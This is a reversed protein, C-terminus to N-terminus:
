LEDRLDDEPEAGTPPAEGTGQYLKAIIPQVVDSLEKKHKKYEEADADRNEELWKIKEQIIDEMKTKDSDSVKAGLKEKDSLQNKLSYVYGEFDNYADIRDKLKKDEDAFKEATKIMDDIDEPTLRNQDNTIVIKERNGTGKDEASVQLIGNADIEFTVEIQPIGRPAPPIGTLDFKGLPHNDKTM